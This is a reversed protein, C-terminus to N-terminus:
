FAPWPIAPWGPSPRPHRGARLLRDVRRCLQAVEESRLLETLRAQMRTERLRSGLEVLAERDPEALPKGAWGWLVSRLKDEIHFTVGHDCGLVAGGIGVLVHGGKRDANNVVADFVAMSRLSPEDAHVLTVLDDHEDVADLVHLWGPSTDRRMVIDVMAIDPDEEVWQQVMGPGFPGNGMVTPPVVDWGALRSVEYAAVERGALTGHPFDWLPREGRVPKYVCPVAVGALTSEGVFSANSAQVLRGELSVDGHELVAAVDAASVQTM